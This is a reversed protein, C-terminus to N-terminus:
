PWRRWGGLLRGLGNAAVALSQPESAAIVEKTNNNEQRHIVWRAPITNSKIM